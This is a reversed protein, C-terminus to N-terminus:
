MWAWDGFIIWNAGDCNDSRALDSQGMLYVCPVTSYPLLDPKIVNITARCMSMASSPM